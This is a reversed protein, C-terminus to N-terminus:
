DGSATEMVPTWFENNYIDTFLYSANARSEDILVDGVKNNGTYTIPNGFVYSDLYSGSYDYYDCVLDIKDGVTLSTMEKAVTETEGNGYVYRAGAIYGNPNVDDFIIILDALDGNILVPVRYTYALDDETVLMDTCYAAVKQGDIGLWAGDYVGILDGDETFNYICDLGLDIYGEGDDYFVNLRLDHVLKWQSEPLSMVKGGNKETWVLKSGDFQNSAVYESISEVDANKGFLGGGSGILGSLLDGIGGSSLPSSYSGGGFLSSFASGAGAASAATQGGTELSAFQRICESYEDDMGIAEYTSVASAVKSARQYPFYVSLGYANTMVSATKNYKVAGLLSSALEKAEATGINYALHVLDVQDIKSSPSFERAGSRADSVAKYDDGKILETTSTAFATLDEPVTAALEALDVVSLTTKQGSCNRNCFAVYDDVILKGLEVTPMDTDASLKTLWDTYYWGVGPETEESAIMYDAHQGLMLGTELTAMLCADFGVFDFRVGASSLADNIGKLTMSGAGPNKEDYGFATLSGGGHDWMILQYRDAPYNDKCYKIFRTLTSPKVLSDRGDDKVLCRLGGSEVKYIQNVSNSIVSNKWTKAGGTYVLLNVNDLKAKTMENLDSTAMGSKSELDTGCMYVMITIKNDGPKISTYKARSGAAVSTNLKGTNPTTKWDGSVSGVNSFDSSGGLLSSLISLGGGSAQNLGADTGGSGGSGGFLGLLKGGGGLALFAIIAIIILIGKGGIGRTSGTSGSRQGESQTSMPRGSYGERRGVPGTGLGSGRRGGGTDRGIINRKRGGGPRNM